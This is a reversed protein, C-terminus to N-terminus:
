LEGRSQADDDALGSGDSLPATRLITGLSAGTLVVCAIVEFSCKQGEQVWSQIETSRRLTGPLQYATVISEANVARGITSSLCRSLDLISDM